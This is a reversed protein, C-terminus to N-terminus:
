VSVARSLVTNDCFEGEVVDDDVSATVAEGSRRQFLHRPGKAASALAVSLALALKRYSVMNKM